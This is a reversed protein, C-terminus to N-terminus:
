LTVGEGGGRSGMAGWIGYPSPGSEIEAGTEFNTTGSTIANITDSVFRVSGDGMAVNVGGSHYSSVTSMSMKGTDNANPYLSGKTLTACSPANPPLITQICNTMSYGGSWCAGAGQRQYESASLLTRDTASRAGNCDVPKISNATNLLAIGGKIKDSYQESSCARESFSITNSLGDTVAAFTMWEMEGMTFGRKNKVLNVPASWDGAAIPCPTATITDGLSLMYNTRGRKAMYPCLEGSVPDSPCGLYNIKVMYEKGYVSSDNYANRINSYNIACISEYLSTQENFPLLTVHIGYGAWNSTESNFPGCMQSPLANNADHYNHVSLAIQKLNNTCQMRRAAERAAQM